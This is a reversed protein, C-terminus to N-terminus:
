HSGKPTTAEVMYLGERLGGQPTWGRLGRGRRTNARRRQKIIRMGKEGPSGIQRNIGMLEKIPGPM